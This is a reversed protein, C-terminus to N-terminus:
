RSRTPAPVARPARRQRRGTITQFMALGFQRGSGVFTQFGFCRAVCGSAAVRYTGLGDIRHGDHPSRIISGRAAVQRGHRSRLSAARCPVAVFYWNPHRHGAHM